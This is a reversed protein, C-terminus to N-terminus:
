LEMKVKFENDSDSTQQNESWQRKDDSIKIAAIM